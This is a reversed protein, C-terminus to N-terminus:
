DETPNADELDADEVEDFNATEPKYTLYGEDELLKKANKIKRDKVKPAIFKKYGFLTLAVACGGVIAKLIKTGMDSENETTVSSEETPVLDTQVDVATEERAEFEIREETM